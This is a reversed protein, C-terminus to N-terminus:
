EHARRPGKERIVPCFLNNDIKEVLRTQVQTNLHIIDSLQGSLKEYHEVLEVNANYYRTVMDVDDKYRKLIKETQAQHLAARRGDVWWFILILGPYGFVNFIAIIETLSLGALMPTTM